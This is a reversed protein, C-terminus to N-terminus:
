NGRAPATLSAGLIQARPRSQDDLMIPQTTETLATNGALDRACLRLFAQAGSEAPPTWRYTTENRLGKAIPQWPGSRSPAYYLDIGDAALNKDSARWAIQLSGSAEGTARVSTIEVTPRTSDVEVWWQPAEGPAPPVAGFGRGNSIALSIGFLGEGPLDIEVPSKKDADECHRQWSQGQDRTLWVEVKGVGSAGTQEVAYELFLHPKSVLQRQQSVVERPPVARHDPLTSSAQPVAPPVSVAVSEQPIVPGEPQPAHTPMPPLAMKNVQREVAAAPKEVHHSLPLATPMPETQTEVQAGVGLPLPLPRPEGAGSNRPEGAGSNRPAAAAPTNAPLLQGINVERSTVNGALDAASVRLMGTFVAQAPICYVNSRGPQPELNRFVKDGTQYLVKTRLPDLCEDRADCQLLQGEPGSGLMSLEVQPAQRDVVVILGPGEKTIDPPTTRGLQDVTVMAFWFEGDRPASFTFANQGWGARAYKQWTPDQPAKFYLQIEQVQARAREDIHIPLQIVGKNLYTRQVQVPQASDAAEQAFAPLEPGQQALGAETSCALLLGATAARARSLLSSPRHSRSRNM